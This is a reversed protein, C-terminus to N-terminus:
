SVLNYSFAGRPTKKPTKLSELHSFVSQAHILKTENFGRILSVTLFYERKEELKNFFSSLSSNFKRSENFNLLSPLSSTKEQNEILPLMDDKFMASEIKRIGM